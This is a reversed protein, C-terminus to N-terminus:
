LPERNHEYDRFVLVPDKLYRLDISHDQVVKYWASLQEVSPPQQAEIMKFWMAALEQDVQAQPSSPLADQYWGAASQYPRVVVKVQLKDKTLDSSLASSQKVFNLFFKACKGCTPKLFVDLHHTTEVTSDGIMMVPLAASLKISVASGLLEHRRSLLHEYIMVQDSVSEGKVKPHMQNVYWAIQCRARQDLEVPKVPLTISSAITKLDESLPCSSDSILALSQDNQTLHKNPDVKSPELHQGIWWGIFILALALGVAAKQHLM